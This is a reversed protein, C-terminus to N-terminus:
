YWMLTSLGSVHRTSDRWASSYLYVKNLRRHRVRPLRREKKPRHSVCFLHNAVPLRCHLPENDRSLMAFYVLRLIRGVYVSFGQLRMTLPTSRSMEPTIIDNIAYNGVNNIGYQVFLFGGQVYSNLPTTAPQNTPIDRLRTTQSDKM